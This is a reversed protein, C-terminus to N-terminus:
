NEEIDIFESEHKKLLQEKIVKKVEENVQTFSAPRIGHFTNGTEELQFHGFGYREDEFWSISIYTVGLDILDKM